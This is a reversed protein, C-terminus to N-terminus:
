WDCSRSLHDSVHEAWIIGIRSKCVEDQYWTMMSVLMQTMVVDSDRTLWVDEWWWPVRRGDDLSRTHAELLTSQLGVLFVVELDVGTRSVPPPPKISPLAEFAVASAQYFPFHRLRKSSWQPLWSHLPLPLRSALRPRAQGKPVDVDAEVM